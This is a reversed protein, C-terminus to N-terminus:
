IKGAKKQFFNSQKRTKGAQREDLCAMGRANFNHYDAFSVEDIM